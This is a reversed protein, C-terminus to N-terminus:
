LFGGWNVAEYMEAKIEGGPFPSEYKPINSILDGM